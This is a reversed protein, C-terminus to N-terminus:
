SIWGLHRIYEYIKNAVIEHGQELFHGGPGKPKTQVWEMMSENPWGLFYKTDIQDILDLNRTRGEYQHNGFADLMIYKKNQQNLYSQILIIYNLYQRYLYEKNHHLTSHKILDNRHDPYNTFLKTNSGPWIIYDGEEDAVEFRLFSSWAIIVLDADKSSELVWRVMRWNACGPDGRNNVKAHLQDALVHPWADNRDALEDGHTFSDGVTLLKM